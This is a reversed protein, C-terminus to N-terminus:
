GNYNDRFRRIYLTDTNRGLNMQDGEKGYEQSEELVEVM